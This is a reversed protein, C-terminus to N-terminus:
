GFNKMCLITNDKPNFDDLEIACHKIGLTKAVVAEMRFGKATRHDKPLEKNRCKRKLKHFCPDCIGKRWFVKKLEPRERLIEQTTKKCRLCSRYKNRGGVDNTNVIELM